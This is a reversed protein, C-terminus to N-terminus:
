WPPVSLQYTGDSGTATGVTTGKVVVSVGALGAGDSESTVTGTLQVSQCFAPLALWLLGLLLSCSKIKRNM